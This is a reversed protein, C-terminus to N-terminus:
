KVLRRQKNCLWAAGDGSSCRIQGICIQHGWSVGSEGQDTVEMSDDKGDTEEIWRGDEGRMGVTQRGHM